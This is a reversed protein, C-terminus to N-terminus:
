GAPSLVAVPDGGRDRIEIRMLKLLAAGLDGAPGGGGGWSAVLELQRADGGGAARREADGGTLTRTGQPLELLERGREGVWALGGRIGGHALRPIDPVGITAGGITHGFASFSPLRFELSNWRDIVWNMAAKFGNKIGDWMGSVAASIRGPLKRFFDVAGNWTRILFGVVEIMFSIQSIAFKLGNALIPGVVPIVKDTIFDALQRLEDENDKIVAQLDHFAEVGKKLWQDVLEAIVPQVKEQFWKIFGQVHPSQIFQEFAKIASGAFETLTGLAKRKFSEVRTAANDSLTDGMKDAAGEIKGFFAVANSPDLRFLAEGMDEAKTGFLAVAAADRAVPDRMARLKDLVLDLGQAAGRGGAAFQATMEKANLGLAKFGAASMTSGDRARIAFEKLADAVVDTDRAGAKLGMSLLGLAETGTLGLDRFKTSYESITDLMDGAQDGGTQFAKTLLDLAETADKAIGTSIMKGVARTTQGLDLEFTSALNLVKGTVDELAEDSAERFGDVDRIVGSLATSVDAMSDGFADAYLKGAVRGAQASNEESLNLQAAMRDTLREREMAEAFGKTLAAGALVGIGAAATALLPGIKELMGGVKSGFEPATSRTGDGLADGFREGVERGAAPARGRASRYAEDTRDRGRVIIEVENPM